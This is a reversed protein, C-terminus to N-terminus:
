HENKPCMFHTASNNKMTNVVDNQQLYVVDKKLSSQLWSSSIRMSKYVCMIPVYYMIYVYHLIYTFAQIDDLISFRLKTIRINTGMDM